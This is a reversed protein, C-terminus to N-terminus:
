KTQREWVITVSAATPTGAFTCDSYDLYPRANYGMPLVRTGSSSITENILIPGTASADRIVFVDNTSGSIIVYLIMPPNPFSTSDFYNWDVNGMTTIGVTREGTAVTHATAGALSAYLLVLILLAVYWLRKWVNGM